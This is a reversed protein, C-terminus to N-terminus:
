FVTTQISNQENKREKGLLSRHIDRSRTEKGRKRQRTREKGRAGGSIEQSENDKVTNVDNELFNITQKQKQEKEGLDTKQSTGGSELKKRKRERQNKRRLECGLHIAMEEQVSQCFHKFSSDNPAGSGPREL